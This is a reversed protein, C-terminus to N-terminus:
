TLNLNTKKLILRVESYSLRECYNLEVARDALLRLSWRAYGEPPDSCALATIKARVDGDIEIPRGSRHADKLFPLGRAHYRNRWNSVTQYTVGLTAAVEKLQKGRHLELLGTARKYVKATLSGKALLDELYRQDAESLKIHAKKM